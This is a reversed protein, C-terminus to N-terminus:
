KSFKVSIITNAPVTIVASKGDASLVVIEDALKETINTKLAYASTATFGSPLNILIDGLDDSGTGEGPSNVRVAPTFIVMSYSNGDMSEYATCKPVSSQANFSTNNIRSFGDTTIGIRTTDTAFRAYHALAYGRNTITKEPPGSELGDGILGYFRKSYWWVFASENNLRQSCDVWNLFQWVWSWTSFYPYLSSAQGTTDSFETQWVEKGIDIAKNYKVQVDGYYHRPIIDIFGASVPDNLAADNINPHNASEGTM